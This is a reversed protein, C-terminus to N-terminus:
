LKLASTEGRANKEQGHAWLAIPLGPTLLFFNKSKRLRSPVLWGFDGKETGSSLFFVLGAANNSILLVQSM